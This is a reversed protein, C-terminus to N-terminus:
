ARLRARFWDMSMVRIRHFVLEPGFGRWRGAFAIYRVKVREGAGAALPPTEFDSESGPM